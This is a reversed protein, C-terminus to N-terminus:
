RGGGMEMRIAGELLIAQSRANVYDARTLDREVAEIVKPVTDGPAICGGAELESRVHRLIGLDTNVIALWAERVPGDNKGVDIEMSDMRHTLEIMLEGMLVGNLACALRGGDSM